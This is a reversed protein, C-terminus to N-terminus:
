SPVFDCFGSKTPVTNLLHLSHPLCVQHIRSHLLLYLSPCLKNVSLYVCEQSLPFYFIVMLIKFNCIKTVEVAEM